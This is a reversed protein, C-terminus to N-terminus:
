YFIDEVDNLQGLLLNEVREFLIKIDKQHHVDFGNELQLVLLRSTERM